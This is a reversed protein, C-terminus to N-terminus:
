YMDSCPSLLSLGVSGASSRLKIPIFVVAVSLASVYTCPVVEGAHQHGLSVLDGVRQTLSGCLLLRFEGRCQARLKVVEQVRPEDRSESATGVILSSSKPSRVEAFELPKYVALFM